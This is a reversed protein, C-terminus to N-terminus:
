DSVFPACLGFTRLRTTMERFVYEVAVHRLDAHLELWSRGRYAYLAYLFHRSNKSSYIVKIHSGALNFISGLEAKHEIRSDYTACTGSWLPSMFDRRLRSGHTRVYTAGFLPLWNGTPCQDRPSWIRGTMFIQFSHSAKSRRSKRYEWMYSKHRVLRKNRAIDPLADM